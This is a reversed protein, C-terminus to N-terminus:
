IRKALASPWRGARIAVCIPQATPVTRLVMWAKPVSPAPQKSSFFRPGLSAWGIRSSAM